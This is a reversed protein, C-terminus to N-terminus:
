FLLLSVALGVVVGLFGALPGYFSGMMAALEKGMTAGGIYLGSLAGGFVSAVLAVGLAVVAPGFNM